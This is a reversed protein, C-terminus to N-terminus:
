TPYGLFGELRGRAVSVYYLARQPQRKLTYLLAAGVPRGVWRALSTVGFRHKRLVFGMGRAYGLAKRRITQNPHAIDLEPHHGCINPDFFCRYGKDLARLLIDQGEAAQWPTEAGVGISEDYGNLAELIDRRFFVMWEISTTWVNNRGIWQRTTEYRGNISRGLEDTARGCVIDAGTEDFVQAVREFLGVPYSCDDDAFVVYHSRSEQWGRNRGRSLGQM